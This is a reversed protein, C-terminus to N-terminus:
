RRVKNAVIPWNESITNPCRNQSRTAGVITASFTSPSPNIGRRHIRVVDNDFGAHMAVHSRSSAPRADTLLMRNSLDGRWLPDVIKQKILEVQATTQSGLSSAELIQGIGTSSSFIVSFNAIDGQWPNAPSISQNGVVLSTASQVNGSGATVVSRTMAIPPSSATAQWIIPAETSVNRNTYYAIFVWENTNIVNGSYTAVSSTTAQGGIYRLQSTTTDVQIRTQITGAAWLVNGATLTTPYFWGAILTPFGSSFMTQSQSITIRDTSNAGFTYPM